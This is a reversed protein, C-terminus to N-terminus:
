PKEGSSQQSEFAKALAVTVTKIRSRLAEKDDDPEAYRLDLVLGPLLCELAELLDPAAAILSADDLRARECVINGSQM